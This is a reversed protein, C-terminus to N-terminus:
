TSKSTDALRRIWGLVRNFLSILSGHYSECVDWMEHDEPWDTKNVLACLLDIRPDVGESILVDDPTAFCLFGSDLFARITRDELTGNAQRKIISEAASKYDESIETEDAEDDMMKKVLSMIYDYQDTRGDKAAQAQAVKWLNDTDIRSLGHKAGIVNFVPLPM